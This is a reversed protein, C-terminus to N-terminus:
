SNLNIYDNRNIITLGQLVLWGPICVRALVDFHEKWLNFPAEVNYPHWFGLPQPSVDNVKRYSGKSKM